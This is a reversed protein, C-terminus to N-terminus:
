KKFYKRISNLIETTNPKDAVIIKAHPNIKKVAEATTTGICFCLSPMKNLAIFSEVGSPSFFVIGDYTVDIKQPKLTNCYVEIRILSINQAVFFDPLVSLSKNGCLFYYHKAIDLSIQQILEKIYGASGKIIAKPLHVTVADLTAGNICYVDIKKHALHKSTALAAHKSTFFLVDGEQIKQLALLTEQSLTTDISIFDLDTICIGKEKASLKFEHKLKKTSLIQVDGKDM